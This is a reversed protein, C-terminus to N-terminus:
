IFVNYSIFGRFICYSCCGYHLLFGSSVVYSMLMFMRVRNGRKFMFVFFVSASLVLCYRLEERIVWFILLVEKSSYDKFMHRRLLMCLALVCVHAYLSILKGTGKTYRIM